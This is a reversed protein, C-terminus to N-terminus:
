DNTRIALTFSFISGHGPTSNLKITSGHLRLIEAVLYLGIGFGTVPNTNLDNVRYFREFLHLQDSKSIGIGQDAISFCVKDKTLQADVKITTGADSYKSANNLLNILVQSLKNRDAYLEIEPCGSYELLHKPTLLLAESITEEMLDKLSFRDLNLTMKGQELRSVNLFDHIITTMKVTQSDARELVNLSFQDEQKRAKAIAMQIYSKVSTLPTKLEHSVITIFDHKRQEELKKYTIDRAIKSLGTIQGRTDKIPSITLSVDILSGSKTLRKTEFHEVREGAKLKSLIMTEEGKRDSPILRLISEGIMEDASFGFIREASPNWSTIISNLDKSIIADDSSAIIASLIANNAEAQVRFTIDRAIKSIGIIKGKPNKIPSITLSVDVMGGDKRKRKTQFHDVRQGQSIRLLIAPEEERRDEPILVLISKGIMEASKYGFIREASKNWSTVIGNLDKSIIADDSSDIIAALMAAQQQEGLYDSISNEQKIIVDNLAAEPSNQM